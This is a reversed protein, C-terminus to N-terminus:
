GWYAWFMSVGVLDKVTTLHPAKLAFDQRLDVVTSSELGGSADKEVSQRETANKKREECESDDAGVVTWLGPHSRNKQKM